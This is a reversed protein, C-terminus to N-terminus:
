TWHSAIMLIWLFFERKAAMRVGEAPEHLISSLRELYEVLWHLEEPIPAFRPMEKVDGAASDDGQIVKGHEMQQLARIMSWHLDFREM